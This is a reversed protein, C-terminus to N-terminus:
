IEDWEISVYDNGSDRLFDAAFNKLTNFVEEDGFAKVAFAFSLIGRYFNNWLDARHEAHRLTGGLGKMHFRPPDGVFMEMIHPSAAHVYGSYAKSLTRTAERATSPDQAGEVSAIWSRIKKRPIMPRRQSSTMALESDFEEEFFASLYADHLSTWDQFIIGFALFTIDEQLEDLIRQMSAQEQVFGHTWLLRTAHLSSVLRALKQVLAQHVTKETHRFVFGDKYPVKKPQPVRKLLSEVTKEMHTLTQNLLPDINM